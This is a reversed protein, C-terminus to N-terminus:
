EDFENKMSTYDKYILEGFEETEDGNYSYAEPITNIAVAKIGVKMMEIIEDSIEFLVYHCNNSVSIWSISQTKQREGAQTNVLKIMKNSKLKFEVIIHDTIQHYKDDQFTLMLYKVSDFTYVSFKSQFGLERYKVANASLFMGWFLFLLLIKKM